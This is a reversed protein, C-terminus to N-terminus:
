LRRFTLAWVWPNSAWGYGRKANISDWLASYWQRALHMSVPDYSQGFDLNSFDWGEAQADAESIDQVREVRVDTIELTIRSAWRPMFISPRWGSRNLTALHGLKCYDSDRYEVCIATDSCQPVACPRWTERVWLRDGPAGYPCPFGHRYLQRTQEALVPGPPTLGQWAIWGSEAAPYVADAWLGGPHLGKSFDAPRCIRRTQTKPNIDRLIARVMAGSFLIPREKMM